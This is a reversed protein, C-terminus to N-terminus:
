KLGLVKHLQIGMRLYPYDKILALCKKISDQTKEPNDKGADCPQLWISGRHYQNSPIDPIYKVNFQEDVVYKLENYVCKENIKYDVAPKPSAVVWDIGEPTPQTGNTEISVFKGQLHLAKILEDLPQLCPEGGTLVVAGRTCKKAIENATMMVHPTVRAGPTDWSEKTDCWPCALNCGLFRVFSVSMGMMSGEGQISDFVEIVPYRTMMKNEGM